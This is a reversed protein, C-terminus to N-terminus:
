MERFLVLQSYSQEYVEQLARRYKLEGIRGFVATKESVKYEMQGVARTTQRQIFESSVGSLGELFAIFCKHAVTANPNSIEEATVNAQMEGSLLKALDKAGVAPFGFNNIAQQQQQQQQHQKQSSSPGASPGASPRAPTGQVGGPMDSPPM